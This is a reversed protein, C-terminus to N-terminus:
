SSAAQKANIYIKSSYSLIQGEHEGRVTVTITDIGKEKVRFRATATGSLDTLQINEDLLEVNSSTVAFKLSVNNSAPPLDYDIKLNSDEDIVVVTAPAHKVKFVKEKVTQKTMRYAPRSGGFLGSSGGQDYYYHEMCANAQPALLALGVFASLVVTIKFM